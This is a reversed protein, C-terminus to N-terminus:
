LTDCSKCSYLSYSFCSSSFSPYAGIEIWTFFWCIRVGGLKADKATTGGIIIPIALCAALPTVYVLYRTLTSFETIKKYLRGMKNVTIEEGDSGVRTPRGKSDVKKVRRGGFMRSREREATTEKVLPSGVNDNSTAAFPTNSDHRQQMDNLPIDITADGSQM